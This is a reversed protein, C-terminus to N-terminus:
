SYLELEKLKAWVRAESEELTERSSDVTIEPSSRLADVGKESIPDSVLVRYSAMPLRVYVVLGCIALNTLFTEESGAKVPPTPCPFCGNIDSLERM